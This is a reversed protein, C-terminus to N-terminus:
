MSKRPLEIVRWGRWIVLGQLGGEDITERLGKKVRCLERIQANQVRDIRRIGLLGRLNDIQVARIRSREKEKWLVTESSYMLFPVLLTEYLVRACELQMDRANVLSRIAGAVRM